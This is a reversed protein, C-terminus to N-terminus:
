GEGDCVSNPGLQFIGTLAADRRCPQKVLVPDLRPWPSESGSAVASFGPFLRVRRLVRTENGSSSTIVVPQLTGALAADPRRPVNVIPLLGSELTRHVSPRRWRNNVFRARLRITSPPGAHFIAWIAVLPSLRAKQSACGMLLWDAAVHQLGTRPVITRGTGAPSRADDTPFSFSTRPLVPNSRVVPRTRVHGMPNPRSGAHRSRVRPTERKVVGAPQCVTRTGPHRNIRPQSGQQPEKGKEKGQGSALALSSEM